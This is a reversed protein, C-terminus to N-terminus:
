EALLKTRESAPEALCDPSLQNERSGGPVSEAPLLWSGESVITALVVVMLWFATATRQRDYGIM